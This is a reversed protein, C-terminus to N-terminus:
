NCTSDNIINRLSRDCVLYREHDYFEMEAAKSFGQLLHV